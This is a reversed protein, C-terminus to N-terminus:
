DTLLKCCDAALVKLLQEDQDSGEKLRKLKM